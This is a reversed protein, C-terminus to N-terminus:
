SWNGLLILLDTVGVTGDLDLDAPCCPGPCGGWAGLMILLDQVEVAGNGNVDGALLTAPTGQTEYAGMDVVVPAGCGTDARAPDDAFRPNGDLDTDTLAFATGNHGADACPSGAGLHLDDNVSDAFMPDADINGTGAWGGQVNCYTVKTAGNINEVIEPASNGWLICNTFTPTAGSVSAVTGGGTPATNGSFTCNILTPSGGNNFMAGGEDAAANNSFICNVVLTGTALLSDLAAGNNACSNNIFVSDTITGNVTLFYDVGGANFGAVGNLFRCRLVTPSGSGVYLNAGRSDCTNGDFVCDVVTPSSGDFAGLGGGRNIANNGSFACNKVTPSAASIFMGGGNVDDPFGGDANGNIISFGDIVTDPGEGTNCTVAHFAGGADITTVGSGGSSRVTIAKGLLDITGAYTGPAVEIEDTDAAGDIADQISCYPDGLTGDGPGPCNSVDVYLIDAHGVPVVAVTAVVMLRRVFSM